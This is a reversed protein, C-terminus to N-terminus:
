RAKCNWDSAGIFQSKGRCVSEKGGLILIAVLILALGALVFLGVTLELKQESAKM